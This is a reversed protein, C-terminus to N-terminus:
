LSIEKRRWSEYSTLTLIRVQKGEHTWIEDETVIRVRGRAHLEVLFDDWSEGAALNARPRPWSTDVTAPPRRVLAPDLIAERTYGSLLDVIPICAAAGAPPLTPLVRSFTLPVATLVEEGSYGIKTECVETEWDVGDLSGPNLEVVHGRGRALSCARRISARHSAGASPEWGSCPSWLQLPLQARCDDAHDM